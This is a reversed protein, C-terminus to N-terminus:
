FKLKFPNNQSCEPFQSDSLLLKSAMRYGLILIFLPVHPYCLSWIRSISQPIPQFRPHPFVPTFYSPSVKVEAVPLISNDNGSIHSSPSPANQRLHRRSAWTSPHRPLHDYEIHCFHQGLSHVQAQFNPHPGPQRFCQSPSLFKCGIRYTVPLGQFSRCLHRNM